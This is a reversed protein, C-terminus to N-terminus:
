FGELYKDSGFNMFFGIFLLEDEPSSPRNIRSSTGEENKSIQVIKDVLFQSLYFIDGPIEQEDCCTVDDIFHT